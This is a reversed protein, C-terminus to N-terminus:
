DLYQILTLLMEKTQPGGDEDDNSAAELQEQLTAKILLMNEDRDFLLLSIRKKVGDDEAILWALVIDITQLCFLGSDLRKSLWEDEAAQREQDSLNTSPKEADIVALKSSYERRLKVLKDIKQYDNEVFKALTRIRAESTAPLLRLLSSLIGLIHEVVQSSQKKIFMGFITKLGAAEVLRECVDVAQNGAVSHDLLRLARTKSMKAERIMILCLEVGEAETFKQKSEPEDVLCTLCDFLNEMYEEEESGKLPDRKRYTSLLRLLLDVGDKMILQKRNDKSSQMLIALVEAAYQKNQTLPTEKIAVRKLLWSLLAAEQVIKEAITSQSALNNLAHYVGNRDAENSEDLRGFNQTILELLGADILAGVLADWQAQEADVNEDTLESIVLLADIAIDTNEHSLLSVLSNVCGLKAFDGYLEAHESLISLDKIGADLDAESAMFKQPDNEHKARLEANKSIRKEFSLALKRIWTADIMEPAIEEGDQTDLYDLIRATSNTIGGDFFRGEEDDDNDDPAEQANPQHDVMDNSNESHFITANGGNEGPNGKAGLKASKYIESPGGAINLKRKKNSATPAKKFLNEISDLSNM